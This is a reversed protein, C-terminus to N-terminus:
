NRAGGVIHRHVLQADISARRLDMVRHAHGLRLRGDIIEHMVDRRIVEVGKSLSHCLTGIVVNSASRVVRRDFVCLAVVRLARSVGSHGRAFLGAAEADHERRAPEIVLATLRSAIHTETEVSEVVAAIAANDRTILKSLHFAIVRIPEIGDIEIRSFRYVRLLDALVHAPLM